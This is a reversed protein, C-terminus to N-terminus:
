AVSFTAVVWFKKAELWPGGSSPPDEQLVAGESTLGAWIGVLANCSRATFREVRFLITSDEERVM